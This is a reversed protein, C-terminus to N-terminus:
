SGRPRRRKVELIAKELTGVDVPKPLFANGVSALFQKARPTFAGGSCFVVREVLELSRESLAEYVMPGDVEPMMVDCLIVDFSPDKELVSLGEAGGGALVVDHRAALIRRYARLVGLDDDIVLIRAREHPEAPEPPPTLPPSTVRPRMAPLRVEYRSGEEEPEVGISGGHLRVIEACLSLDLGEGPGRGNTPFFPQFIRERAAEPVGKGTHRVTIVVFGEELRTSVRIENENAAGEDISRAATVLLTTFVQALKGPEALVPPLRRLEKILRARHRIDAYALNCAVDVLDNVTVQRTDEQEIRSFTRLDAVISAIREIGVLNDDVMENAERLLAEVSDDLAVKGFASLKEEPRMDERTALRRLKAFTSRLVGVSDRLVKLNTLIFTAPNNVEHAVGGAIQGIAALKGAHVLRAQAEKLSEYARSLEEEREVKLTVDRIILLVLKNGESEFVKARLEGSFASGDGRFLRVNPHFARERKQMEEVVAAFEPEEAAGLGSLDRAALEEVSQRFLECAAPNAELFLGSEFDAVIIAEDAAEILARYRDASAARFSPPISSRRPPREDDNPPSPGEAESM